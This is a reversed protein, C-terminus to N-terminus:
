FKEISIEIDPLRVLTNNQCVLEGCEKECKFDCYPFEIVLSPKKYNVFDESIIGKIIM